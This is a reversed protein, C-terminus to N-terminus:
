NSSSFRQTKQLWLKSLRFIPPNKDIVALRAMGSQLEAM